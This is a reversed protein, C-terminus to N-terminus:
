VHEVMIGEIENAADDFCDVTKELLDFVERAAIFRLADEPRCRRFLETV